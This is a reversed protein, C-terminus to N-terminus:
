IAKDVYSTTYRHTGVEAKYAVRHEEKNQFYTNVVAM